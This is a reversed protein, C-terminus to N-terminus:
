NINSLFGDEKDSGYSRISNVTDSRKKLDLIGYVKAAVGRPVFPEASEIYLKVGSDEIKIRGKEAIGIEKAGKFPVYSIYFTGKHTTAGFYVNSGDSNDIRSAWLNGKNDYVTMRNSNIPLPGIKAPDNETFLTPEFKAVVRHSNDQSVVWSVSNFNEVKIEQEKTVKGYKPDKGPIREMSDYQKIKVTLQGDKDLDWEHRLAVQAFGKEQYSWNSVVPKNDGFKWSRGEDGKYLLRRGSKDFVLIEGKIELQYRLKDVPLPKKDSDSSAFNNDMAYAVQSVFMAALILKKM